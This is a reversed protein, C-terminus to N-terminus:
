KMFRVAAEGSVFIQWKDNDDYWVISCVEGPTLVHNRLEAKIVVDTRPLKIERTKILEGETRNLQYGM